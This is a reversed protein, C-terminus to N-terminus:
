RGESVVELDVDPMMSSKGKWMTSGFWAVEFLGGPPSSIILGALDTGYLRAHVRHRVIDGVKM